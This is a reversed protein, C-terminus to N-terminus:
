LILYLVVNFFIQFLFLFNYVFLLYLTSYDFVVVRLCLFSDVCCSNSSGSYKKLDTYLEFSLPHNLPQPLSSNPRMAM